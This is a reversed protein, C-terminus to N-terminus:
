NIYGILKCPLTHRRGRVVSIPEQLIDCDLINVNASRRGSFINILIQFDEDALNDFSKKAINVKKFRAIRSDTLEVNTDALYVEGMETLEVNANDKPIGTIYAQVIISEDSGELAVEADDTVDVEIEFEPITISDGNQTFTNLLESDDADYGDDPLDQSEEESITESSESSKREGCSTGLMSFSLVAMFLFRATLLNKSKM